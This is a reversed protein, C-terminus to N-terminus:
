IENLAGNAIYFHGWDVDSPITKHKVIREKLNLIVRVWPADPVVAM